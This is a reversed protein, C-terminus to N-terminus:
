AYTDDIQLPTLIAKISFVVRLVAESLIM